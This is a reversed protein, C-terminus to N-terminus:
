TEVREQGRKLTVQLTAFSDAFTAAARANSFQYEEWLGGPSRFTINGYLCIPIQRNGAFRKDPSGDRNAKLWAQGVVQADAPLDEDEQFRVPEFELSIDRIDLLAFAGDARPILAFSPYLLIDEGNANGFRLARGEFVVVDHAAFGIKVPKREVSRSVTTREIARNVARDSTVDWISRSGILEAFARDLSAWAREGESGVGFDIPVETGRQWEELREIEAETDRGEKNITRIRKRYFRRFLSRERRDLEAILKDRLANAEALDEAIETAQDRATRITERLSFLSPSGISEVSASSIQRTAPAARARDSASGRGPVGYNTPLPPPEYVPLNSSPAPAGAPRAGPGSLMTSYSIGSGPIGVTARVGRKGVNITAGPVGFSASIGRGSLNLRVGPFLSFSQRFRLGM